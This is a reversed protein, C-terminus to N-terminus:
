QDDGIVPMVWQNLDLGRVNQPAVQARPARQRQPLAGWMVDGGVGAVPMEVGLIGIDSVEAKAGEKHLRCNAPKVQFPVMQNCSPDKCPKHAPAMCNVCLISREGMDGVYFTVMESQVFKRDCGACRHENKKLYEKLEGLEQPTLLAQKLMSLYEGTMRNMAFPQQLAQVLHDILMTFDETKRSSALKVINVLEDRVQLPTWNRDGADDMNYVAQMVQIPSDPTPSNEIERGLERGGRATSPLGKRVGEMVLLIKDVLQRSLKFM